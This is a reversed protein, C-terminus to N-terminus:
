GNKGPVGRRHTHKVAMGGLKGFTRLLVRICFYEVFQENL